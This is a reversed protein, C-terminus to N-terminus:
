FCCGYSVGLGNQVNKLNFEVRVDDSDFGGSDHGPIAYEFGHYYYASIEGCGTKWTAGITIHDENVCQTLTNLLTETSWGIPGDGHNWGIRFVWNCWRYAFGVKFIPQDKWGLGIGNDGGKVGFTMNDGGGWLLGNQRSTHDFYDSTSWLRDIFDFGFTLCRTLDWALGIGVEAPLDVTGADVFLGQYKQFKQMWTISQFTAGVRFCRTVCALWGVRFGVGMEWDAGKDTVYDPFLSVDPITPFVDPQGGIRIGNFRNWAINVSAGVSHVCNIRYSLTPTFMLAYFNAEPHTATPEGYATDLAGYVYAVLGLTMRNNLRWNIAMEPFWLGRDTKAQFPLFLTSETEAAATANQFVYGLGIDARCPLWVGAAPNMAIAFADQPFAIGVGGMGKAKAGVGLDNMGNTAWTVGPLLASVVALLLILRKCM